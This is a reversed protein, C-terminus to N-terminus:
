YFYYPFGLFYLGFDFDVSFLVEKTTGLGAGSTAPRMRRPAHAAVRSSTASECWAETSLARPVAGARSTKGSASTRPGLIEQNEM